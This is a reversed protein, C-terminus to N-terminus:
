NTRNLIKFWITAEKEKKALHGYLTDALGKMTQDMDKKIKDQIEAFTETVILAVSSAFKEGEISKIDSANLIIRSNCLPPWSDNNDEKKGIISVIHQPNINHERFDDDGYMVNVKINFM